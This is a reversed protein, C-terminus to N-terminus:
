SNVARSQRQRQHSATAQYATTRGPPILRTSPMGAVVDPGHEGLNDLHPRRALRLAALRVIDDRSACNCITAAGVGLKAAIGAMTIRALGLEIAADLTHALTVARPRGAEETVEPRVDRKAKAGM